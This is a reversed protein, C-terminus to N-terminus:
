DDALNAVDGCKGVMDVIRGGSSYREVLYIGCGSLVTVCLPNYDVWPDPDDDWLPDLSRTV